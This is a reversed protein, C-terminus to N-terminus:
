RVPKRPDNLPDVYVTDSPGFGSIYVVAPEDGTAAFHDLAAPETYFSGPPLAQLAAANAESGVGFRWSGSVVVVSRADRRRHAAISTNAPVHLAITYPGTASPDGVLVTTRIGAAGSTGRTVAATELAAIEAPTLRVVTPPPAAGDLRAIALIVGLLMM